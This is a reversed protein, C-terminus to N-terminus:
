NFKLNGVKKKKGLFFERSEGGKGCRNQSYTIIRKKEEKKSHM